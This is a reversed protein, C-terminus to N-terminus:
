KSRPQDDPLQNYLEWIGAEYDAFMGPEEKLITWEALEYGLGDVQQDLDNALYSTVMSVNEFDEGECSKILEILSKVLKRYM